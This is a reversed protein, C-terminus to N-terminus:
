GLVALTEEGFSYQSMYEGHFRQKNGQLYDYYDCDIKDKNVGIKGWEQVLAQEIGLLRFTNILDEKINRMYSEKEDDECIAAMIEKTSVVAGKRDILYAFMQKTKGYKFKIPIGKYTVEFNGFCSVLLNEVKNSVTYRLKKMAAELKEETIPKMLYASCYLELAELSYEAYGTCFIINVEPYLEQLERALKMGSGAELNIDLFAIAISNNRAYELTEEMNSFSEVNADQLLKKIMITETQLIIREDDVVIVNM